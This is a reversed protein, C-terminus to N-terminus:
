SRLLNQEHNFYTEFIPDDLKLSISEKTIINQLEIIASATIFVNRDGLFYISRIM